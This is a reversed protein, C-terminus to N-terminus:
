KIAALFGSPSKMPYLKIYGKYSLFVQMCLFCRTRKEEKTVFLIDSFFCSNIKKYRLMRDNNVLNLSLSTNPRCWNLQTTADLTREATAHYIQCIKSIEGALVGRPQSSNTSGVIAWSESKQALFVQM